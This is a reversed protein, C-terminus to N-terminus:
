CNELRQCITVDSREACSKQLEREQLTTFHGLLRSCTSGSLRVVLKRQWGNSGSLPFHFFCDNRSVVAQYNNEKMSPTQQGRSGIDVFAKPLSNANKLWNNQNNIVSLPVATENASAMSHFYLYRESQQINPKSLALSFLGDM